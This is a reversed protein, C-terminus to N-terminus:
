EVRLHDKNGRQEMLKWVNRMEEANMIMQKARAEECHLTM